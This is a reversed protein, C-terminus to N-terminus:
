AVFFAVPAVPDADKEIKLSQTWGCFKVLDDIEDVSTDQPCLSPIEEQLVKCLKKYIIQTLREQYPSGIGRGKLLRNWILSVIKKTVDEKKTKTIFRHSNM